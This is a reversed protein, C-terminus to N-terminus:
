SDTITVPFFCMCQLRFYVLFLMVSFNHVRTRGREKVRECARDKGSGEGQGSYLCFATQMVGFLAYCKVFYCACHINCFLRLSPSASSIPFYVHEQGIRDFSRKEYRKKKKKMHAHYLSFRTNLKFNKSNNTAM